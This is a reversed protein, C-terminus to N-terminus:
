EYVQRNYQLQHEIIQKIRKRARSLLVRVHEPSTDLENAIDEFELREIDRLNFVKQHLEPLKRLANDVLLLREDEDFKEDNCILSGETNAVSDIEVMQKKLKLRDLCSNRTITNAFAEISKVELMYARKTWLKVFVDQVCDKAEHESRLM